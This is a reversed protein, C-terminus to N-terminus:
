RVIRIYDCVRKFSRKGTVREYSDEDHGYLTIRISAPPHSQFFRIWEEDLLSGNTLVTIRCGRSQLHLYLEKFGPYSLCEGGSLTAKYMGAECAQDMLKKWQLATMVARGGLQQGTLHVYCIRCDFSCLPTLEFQGTVPIGKERAKMELYREYSGFSLKEEARKEQLLELFEFGNQPSDM